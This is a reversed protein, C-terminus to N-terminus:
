IIELSDEEYVYKLFWILDGKGGGRKEWRKEFGVNSQVVWHGNSCYERMRIQHLCGNLQYVLWELSYKTWRFHHIEKQHFLKENSEYVPDEFKLCGETSQEHSQDINQVFKWPM